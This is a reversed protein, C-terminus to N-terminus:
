NISTHAKKSVVTEIKSTLCNDLYCKLNSLLVLDGCDMAGTCTMSQRLLRAINNNQVKGGSSTDIRNKLGAWAAWLKSWVNPWLWMHIFTNAIYDVQNCPKIHILFFSYHCKVETTKSKKNFLFISEQKLFKNQTLEDSKSINDQKGSLVNM